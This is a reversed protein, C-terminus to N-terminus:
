VGGCYFPGLLCIIGAARPHAAALWPYSLHFGMSGQDYGQAERGQGTGGRVLRLWEFDVEQGGALQHVEGRGGVRVGHQLCNERIARIECSSEIQRYSDWNPHTLDLPEQRRM